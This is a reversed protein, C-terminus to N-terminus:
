KKLYQWFVSKQGKYYCGILSIFGDGSTMMTFCEYSWYTAYSPWNQSLTWYPTQLHYVHLRFHGILSKYPGFHHGYPNFLDRYIVSMPRIPVLILCPRCMQLMYLGSSPRYSRYPLIPGTPFSNICPMYTVLTPYIKSISCAVVLIPGTSLFM